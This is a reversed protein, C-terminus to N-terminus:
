DYFWVVTAVRILDFCVFSYTRDPNVSLTSFSFPKSKVKLSGPFSEGGTNCHLSMVKPYGPLSIHIYIKHM